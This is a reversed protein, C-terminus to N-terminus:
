VSQIETDKRFCIVQRQFLVHVNWTPYWWGKLNCFAIFICQIIWWLQFESVFDRQYEPNDFDNNLFEHHFQRPRIQLRCSHICNCSWSNSYNTVTAHKLACFKLGIRIKFCEFSRKLINVHLKSRFIQLSSVKQEHQPLDGTVALNTEVNGEM